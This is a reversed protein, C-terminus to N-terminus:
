GNVKGGDNKAAQFYAQASPSSGRIVVKSKEKEKYELAYLREELENIKLLLEAVTPVKNEEKM